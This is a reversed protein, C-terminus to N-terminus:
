RGQGRLRRLSGLCYHVFTLGSYAPVVLNLLPVYALLGSIVGVMWLGSREREVVTQLETADAHEMLADYRYARQSLYAALVVPAVLGFGPILWLPLTVLWALLYVIFAWLANVVSGALTGGKRRELDPYETAGVRELMLPLAVLAVLMLATAYVLPVFLLALFVHATALAAVSLFQTSNMIGELWPWRHFWELMTTSVPEWYLWGLVAWVVIAALTPWILHWFMSPRSLSRLARGFAGLVENM